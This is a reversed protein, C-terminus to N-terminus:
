AQIVSGFKEPFVVERVTADTEGGKLIILKSKSVIVQNPHSLQLKEKGSLWSPSATPTAHSTFAILHYGQAGLNQLAPASVLQYHSM